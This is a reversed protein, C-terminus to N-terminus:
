SYSEKNYIVEGQIDYTLSNCLIVTSNCRIGVGETIPRMRVAGDCWYDENDCYLDENDCKLGLGPATAYATTTAYEITNYTTM